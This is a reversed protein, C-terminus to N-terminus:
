VKVVREVWWDVVEQVGWVGRKDNYGKIVPSPMAVAGGAGGMVSKDWGERVRWEREAREGARRVVEDEDEGRYLDCKECEM